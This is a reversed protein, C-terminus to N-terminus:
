RHVIIVILNNARFNVFDDDTHREANAIIADVCGDVICICKTKFIINSEHFVKKVTRTIPSGTPAFSM